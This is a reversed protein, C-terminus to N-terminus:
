PMVIFKVPDFRRRDHRKIPRNRDRINVSRLCTEISDRLDWLSIPQFRTMQEVRHHTLQVPSQFVIPSGGFTEATRKLKRLDAGLLHVEHM